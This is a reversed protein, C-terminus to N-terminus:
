DHDDDEEIQAALERLWQAKVAPTIDSPTKMRLLWDGYLEYLADRAKYLPPLMVDFGSSKQYRNIDVNLAIIADRYHDSLKREQETM